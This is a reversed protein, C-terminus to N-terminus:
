RNTMRELKDVREGFDTAELAKIYAEILKGLESAEAPTLDGVAVAWSHRQQTPQTAASSVPPLEFVLAPHAEPIQDVVIFGNPRPRLRLLM